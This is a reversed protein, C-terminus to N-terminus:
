RAPWWASRGGPRRIPGDEVLAGVWWQWLLLGVVMATLVGLTVVALMAKGGLPGCGASDVEGGNRVFPVGTRFTRVISRVNGYPM